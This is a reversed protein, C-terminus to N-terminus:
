DDEIKSDTPSEGVTDALARRGAILRCRAAGHLDPVHRDVVSYRSVASHDGAPNTSAGRKALHTPHTSEEHQPSLTSGGAGRSTCVCADKGQFLGPNGYKLLLWMSSGRTM